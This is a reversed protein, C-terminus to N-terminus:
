PNYKSYNPKPQGFHYDTERYYKRYRSLKKFGADTVQLKSVHLLRNNGKNTSHKCINTSEYPLSVGKPNELAGHSWRLTLFLKM